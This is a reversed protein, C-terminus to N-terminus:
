VPKGTSADTGGSREFPSFVHILRECQSFSIAAAAAAIPMIGTITIM